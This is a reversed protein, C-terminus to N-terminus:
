VIVNCVYPQFSPFDPRGVGEALYLQLPHQSHGIFPIGSLPCALVNESQNSDDRMSSVAAMGITPQFLSETV